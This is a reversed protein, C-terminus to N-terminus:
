EDSIGLPILLRKQVNKNHMALPLKPNIEFLSYYYPENCLKKKEGSSV